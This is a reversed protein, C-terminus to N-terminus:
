FEAQSEPAEALVLCDPENEGGLRSHLSAEDLPVLSACLLVKSLLLVPFVLRFVHVAARHCVAPM